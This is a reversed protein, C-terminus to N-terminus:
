VSLNQEITVEKQQKTEMWIGAVYFFLLGFSVHIITFLFGLSVSEYIVIPLKAVTWVGLFFVVNRLLAGNKMLIAAIPFAVYLPGAAVGGLLLAIMPGRFGSGKGVYKMMTEKPVWTDLLGILILIPPLLSLMDLISNGTITIAKLGKSNNLFFLGLTVFVMILFLRYQEIWKM